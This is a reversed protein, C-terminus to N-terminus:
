RPGQRSSALSALQPEKAKHKLAEKVAKRNSTAKLMVRRNYNEETGEDVEYM